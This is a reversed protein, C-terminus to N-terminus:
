IQQPETSQTRHVVLAAGHGSKTFEDAAVVGQDFVGRTHHQPDLRNEARSRDVAAANGHIVRPVAGAKEAREAIPARPQSCFVEVGM